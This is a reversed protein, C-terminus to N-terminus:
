YLAFSFEQQFLASSCGVIEEPQYRFVRNIVPRNSLPVPKNEVVPVYLGKVPIKQSGAPAGGLEVPQKREADIRLHAASRTIGGGVPGRELLRPLIDFLGAGQDVPCRLLRRFLQLMDRNFMPQHM